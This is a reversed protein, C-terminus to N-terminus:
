LRALVQEEWADEDQDGVAVFPWGVDGRDAGPDARDAGARAPATRQLMYSHGNQTVLAMDGLQVGTIAGGEATLAGSDAPLRALSRWSVINKAAEPTVIAFDDPM